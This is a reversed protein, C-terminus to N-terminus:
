TFGADVLIQRKQELLVDTVGPLVNVANGHQWAAGSAARIQADIAALDANWDAQAPAPRLLAAAALLLFAVPKLTRM